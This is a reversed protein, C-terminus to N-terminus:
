LVTETEKTASQKRKIAVHHISQRPTKVARASGCPVADTVSPPPGGPLLNLHPTPERARGARSGLFAAMDDRPTLTLGGTWLVGRINGPPRARPRLSSECVFLYESHGVGVICMSMSM